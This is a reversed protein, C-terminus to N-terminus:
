IKAAIKPKIAVVIGTVMILCGIVERWEPVFLPLVAMAVLFAFFPQLLATLATYGAQVFRSSAMKFLRALFPGAFASVAVYSYWPQWAGDGVFSLDTVALMFGLCLVMRLTNVKVIDIGARFYRASLTVIGFCCASLISYAVAEYSSTGLVGPPLSAAMGAVVIAVGLAFWWSLREGMAFFGVLSVFIVEFRVFATVLPASMSQLAMASTLNGTIAGFAMAISCYLEPKTIATLRRIRGTVVLFILQITLTFAFLLLTMQRPEAFATAKKYFVVFFATCFAGLCGLLIGKQAPKLAFTM